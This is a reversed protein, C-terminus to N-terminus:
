IWKVESILHRPNTLCSCHQNLRPRIHPLPPTAQGALRLAGTRPSISPPPIADSLLDTFSGQFVPVSGEGNWFRNSLEFSPTMASSSPLHTHYPGQSTVVSQLTAIVGSLQLSALCVPSSMYTAINTPTAVFDIPTAVNAPTPSNTSLSAVNAPSAISTSPQTATTPASTYSSPPAPNEKSDKGEEEEEGGGVDEEAEEVEESVVRHSASAHEENGEAEKEHSPSGPAESDKMVGLNVRADSDMETISMIPETTQSKQTGKFARMGAICPTLIHPGEMSSDFKGGYISNLFERYAEVFM